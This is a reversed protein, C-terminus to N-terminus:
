NVTSTFVFKAQLSVLLSPINDKNTTVDILYLASDDPRVTLLKSLSWSDEM